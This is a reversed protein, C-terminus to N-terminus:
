RGEPRRAPGIIMLHHHYYLYLNLNLFLILYPQKQKPKSPNAQTQKMQKLLTFNVHRRVGQEARDALRGGRRM